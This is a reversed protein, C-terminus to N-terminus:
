VGTEDRGDWIIDKVEDDGYAMGKYLNKVLEGRNNFMKVEARATKPLIFSIKTSSNRTSLPNPSNQHLGYQKPINQYPNPYSIDPINLVVPSYRYFAGGLDVSELWYWYTEGQIGDLEVDKYIYSHPETTTGYGEILYDTIRESTTFDEETNRYVYWGINDTESMTRWYLTPVGNLFQATFSSLTVPLTANNSNIPFYTSNVTAPSSVTIYSEDHLEAGATHTSEAAVAIDYVVFFDQSSTTISISQDTIDM